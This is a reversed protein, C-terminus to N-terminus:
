CAAGAFRGIYYSITPYCIPNMQFPSSKKNGQEGGEITHLLM